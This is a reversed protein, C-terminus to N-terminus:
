CIVIYTYAIIQERPTHQICSCQVTPQMDAAESVHCPLVINNVNM